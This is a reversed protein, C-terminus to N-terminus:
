RPPRSAKRILALVSTSEGRARSSFFAISFFTPLGTNTFFTPQPNLQAPIQSNQLPQTSFGPRKQKPPYYKLSQTLQNRAEYIHVVGILSEKYNIVVNKNHLM